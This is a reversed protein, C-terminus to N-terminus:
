TSQSQVACAPASWPPDPSYRSSGAQGSLPMAESDAVSEPECREGTGELEGHGRTVIGGGCGHAADSDDGHRHGPGGAPRHACQGIPSAAILIMRLQRNTETM